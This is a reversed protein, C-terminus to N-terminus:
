RAKDLSNLVTRQSLVQHVLPIAADAALSQPFAPRRWGNVLMRSSSDPERILITEGCVRPV